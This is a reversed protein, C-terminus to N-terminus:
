GEKLQLSGINRADSFVYGSYISAFAASSVLTCNQKSEAKRLVKSIKEDGYQALFNWM